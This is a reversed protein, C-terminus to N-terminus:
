LQECVVATLGLKDLSNHGAGISWDWGHASESMGAGLGGCIEMCVGCVIEKGVLGVMNGVSVAEIDTEGISDWEVDDVWERGDTGVTVDAGEGVAAGAGKIEWGICVRLLLPM